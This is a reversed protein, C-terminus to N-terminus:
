PGAATITDIMVRVCPVKTLDMDDVFNINQNIVYASKTINEKYSQVWSFDVLITMFDTNKFSSIQSKVTICGLVSILPNDNLGADGGCGVSNGSTMNTVKGNPQADDGANMEIMIEDGNNFEDIRGDCQDGPDIVKGTITTMAEGTPSPSMIDDEQAIVNNDSDCGISMAVVLVLGIGLFLSKM